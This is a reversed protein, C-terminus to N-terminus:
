FWFYSWQFLSIYHIERLNEPLDAFREEYYYEM